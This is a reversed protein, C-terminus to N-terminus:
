RDERRVEYLSQARVIARAEPYTHVVQVSLGGARPEAHLRSMPAAALRDRPTGRYFLDGPRAELAVEDCLHAFVEPDAEEVEVVGHYEVRGAALSASRERRVPGHHRLGVDPLELRSDALVESVRGDGVAFVVAHGGEVLRLDAEWGLKSLRRHGRVAFWDPHIARAYVRLDLAVATSRDRRVGM